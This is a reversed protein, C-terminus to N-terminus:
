STLQRYAPVNNSMFADLALGAVVALTTYMFTKGNRGM